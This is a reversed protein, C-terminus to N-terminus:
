FPTAHTLNVAWSTFIKVAPILRCPTMFCKSPSPRQIRWTRIRANVQFVFVTTRLSWWHLPKGTLYFQYGFLLTFPWWKVLRKPNYHIWLNRDLFIVILICLVVTKGTIIHPHSVQDSLTLSSCVLLNLTNSFLTSHFISPNLLLSHCPVQSSHMLLLKIIQVGWWDFWSSLSPRPLHYTHSLPSTCVHNQHPSKLSFFKSSRPTSPLIINFHIKLIHSPSAYVKLSRAGSLSLHPAQSHPSSDEPEM